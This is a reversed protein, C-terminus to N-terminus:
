HSTAYHEYTKKMGEVFPTYEFGLVRQILTGSYILHNDLPFPLPIRERNIAEISKARVAMRKGTVERLVDIFRGYSILEEAAMNFAQDFVEENGLCLIIIRATDWASVFQFLALNNDPVVIIKNQRVLDFFYSERPAYNYKGYIIAPRLSTYRIDRKRSQGMLEVEAQWKNLAYNAAAPGLEPQPGTLKPSDEKVPLVLTDEYISTTSIYIYHNVSNDPLVTILNRIDRPLYACFDVVAHWDIIPIVERLRETDNRDSVIEHVGKINLPRNGRNVVYISFDSEKVLEEVFVRGLFYSGGIVLINKM